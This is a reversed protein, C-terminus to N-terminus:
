FHDRTPARGESITSHVRLMLTSARQRNLNSGGPNPRLGLPRGPPTMNGNGSAGTATDIVVMNPPSSAMQYRGTQRSPAPDGQGSTPRVLLHAIMMSLLLLCGGTLISTRRM